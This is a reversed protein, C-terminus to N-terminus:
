INVGQVPARDIAEFVHANLRLRQELLAQCKSKLEPMSFHALMNEYFGAIVMSRAVEESVGRSSIYFLKEKDLRGVTAAHSCKVDSNLIELSPIPDAEAQPSLLLLDCAQKGQSVVAEKEMRILGNYICKSSDDLCGRALLESHTHPSVHRVSQSLDVQQTHGALIVGVNSSSAHPAALTSAYESKTFEGGFEGWEFRVSANGEVEARSIFFHFVNSSPLDQLRGIHVLANPKAVVELVSSYFVPHTFAAEARVEQVISVSSNEEAVILVHDVRSYKGLVASLHIPLPVKVNAPLYIFVGESLFAVHLSEMKNEVRLQRGLYVDMQQPFKEFATAFDCMVAGNGLDQLFRKPPVVDFVFSEWDMRSADSRIDLGYKFQSFDLSSFSDLAKRRFGAWRKSENLQRGASEAHSSSWNKIAISEM